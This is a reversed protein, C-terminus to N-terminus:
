ISKEVNEAVIVDTLKEKESEVSSVYTTTQKLESLCIEKYLQKILKERTMGYYALYMRNNWKM